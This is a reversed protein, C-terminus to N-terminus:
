PIAIVITLLLTSVIFPNLSNKVEGQIVSDMGLILYMIGVIVLIVSIFMIFMNVKGGTKM